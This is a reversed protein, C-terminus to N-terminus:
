WDLDPYSRNVINESIDVTYEKTYTKICYRNSSYIKIEEITEDIKSEFLNIAIVIKKKSIKSM